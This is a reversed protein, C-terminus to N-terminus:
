SQVPDRGRRQSEKCECRFRPGRSVSGQDEIGVKGGRFESDEPDKSDKAESDQGKSLWDCRGISSWTRVTTGGQIRVM